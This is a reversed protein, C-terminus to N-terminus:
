YGSINFYPDELAYKLPEYINTGGKNAMFTTSITKIVKNVIEDCYNNGIGLPYYSSGFSIIEFLCDSPLSKMFLILAQKTLDIKNGQMSQSRDM